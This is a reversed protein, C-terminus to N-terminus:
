GEQPKPIRITAATGKGPESDIELSGGCVLRLRERVNAIGVRVRDQETQRRPDFGPGDDRVTIEYCDPGETSSLIVTGRGGPNRRIGHRVANEVLPQLCMPPLEFETCDIQYEVGLADEFRVQELELYLRTQDLEREFPILEQTNLSEMVGRFYKSFQLTTQKAKQPETDCLDAIAGLSNYLFHPQIQSLMIESRLKLNEQQQRYADEMQRESFFIHLLLTCIMISVPVVNIFFIQLVVAILSLVLIITFANWDNKRMESRCRLLVWVDTLLMLGPLILSLFYAESRHYINYEDISYFLHTFQSFILLVIQLLMLAHLFCRIGKKERNPDAFFLMVGSGAYPFLGCLLYDNFCACHFGIRNLLGPEGYLYQEILMTVSYLFMVLYLLASFRTLTTRRPLGHRMNLILMTGMVVSLAVMIICSVHFLEEYDLM